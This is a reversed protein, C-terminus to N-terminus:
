RMKSTSAEEIASPEAECRCPLAPILSGQSPRSDRRITAPTSAMRNTAAGSAATASVGGHIANAEAPDIPIGM